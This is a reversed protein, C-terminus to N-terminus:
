ALMASRKTATARTMMPVTTITMFVMDPVAYILKRLNSLIKLESLMFFFIILRFLDTINIM